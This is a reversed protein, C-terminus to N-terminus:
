VTCSFIRITPLSYVRDGVEPNSFICMEEISTPSLSLSLSLSFPSVGNKLTGKETGNIGLSSQLLIKDKCDIVLM